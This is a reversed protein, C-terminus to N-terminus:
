LLRVIDLSNVRARNVTLGWHLHPGTVRGTAGVRGIVDGAIVTDGAKVDFASLHGYLTYVGLGHDLIVTNGSFYLPEALVVRGAQAAHIPTGAPAPFDVGTHPSSPEGNLVRRRGFNGGNTAGTIPVRFRGNWLKEATGTAFIERLRKREADARALQEPNPEVFQPAVTLKEVAFQGASVTLTATCSIEEGDATKISAVFDHAGTALELDIGLLARRVDLEKEAGGGAAWFELANGDWKGGIEVLRRASRVEVLQLSGQRPEKSSIRLEVGPACVQRSWQLDATKRRPAKSQSAAVWPSALFCLIVLLFRLSFGANRFTEISRM